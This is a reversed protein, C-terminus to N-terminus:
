RGDYIAQLQAIDHVALHPRACQPLADFANPGGLGSHVV